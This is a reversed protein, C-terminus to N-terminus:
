RGSQALGQADASRGQGWFAGVVQLLLIPLVSIVVAGGSAIGLVTSRTPWAGYFIWAAFLGALYAGLGSAFVVLAGAGSLGEGVGGDAMVDYWTGVHPVIERAAFGYLVPGLLTCFVVHNLVILSGFYPFPYIKLWEAGWAPWSASIFCGPLAVTMFRVAQTWEPMIVEDRRFCSWLRQASLAFLFLGAGRFFTLPGWMALLADGILSGALAGWVGAPGWFAGALPVIVIYPQFEIFYPIVQAKAFALRGLLYLATVILFWAVMRPYKWMMVLSRIAQM